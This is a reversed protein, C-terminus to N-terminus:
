AGATCHPVTASRRITLEGPVLIDSQYPLGENILQIAQLAQQAVSVMDVKVTSLPPFLLEGSPIGDFGVVSIDNPIRAGIYHLIRYLRIATEDNYCVAATCGSKLCEEILDSVGAQANRSSIDVNSLAHAPDLGWDRIRNNLISRRFGVEANAYQPDTDWAYLLRTHGLSLVYDVLEGFRQVGARVSVAHAVLTDPVPRNFFCVPVEADRLLENYSDPPDGLVLVGLATEIARVIPEAPLRNHVGFGLVQTKLELAGAVRTIANLSTDFWQNAIAGTESGSALLEAHVLTVLTRSTRQSRHLLGPRISVRSGSGHRTEILGAEALHRTAKAVTQTTVGYERALERVTPIAQGPLLVSSEIQNRIDNAIQVYRAM